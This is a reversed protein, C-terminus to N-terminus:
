LLLEHWLVCHCHPVLTRRLLHGLSLTLLPDLDRLLDLLPVGLEKVLEGVLAGHDQLLQLQLRQQAGNELQEEVHLPLRELQLVELFCHVAEVLVQPSEDELDTKSKVRHLFGLLRQLLLDFAQLLLLLLNVRLHVVQLAVLVQSVLDVELCSHCPLSYVQLVHLLLVHGM